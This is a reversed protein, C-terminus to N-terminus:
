PLRYRQLYQLDDDDKRALYVVRSGFGVLRTHAPLAIRESLHGRDDFVDYTPIPDDHARTRLVWLRGDPAVVAAGALFAPMVAPWGIDADDFLARSMPAAKGQPPGSGGSSAPPAVAGGGGGPGMVIISGPRTQGEIFAKKEADSIRVPQYPVPPGRTRRGDVGIWEVHYDGARVIAVRGDSAFAVADEPALPRNTYAFVRGGPLSRTATRRGAPIGLVAITDVAVRGRSRRLVVQDREESFGSAGRPGYRDNVFYFHAYYDIATALGVMRRDDGGDDLAFSTGPKGGPLIVLYRLNLADALLTTDGPLAFLRGPIGYEGPGNGVRGVTEGSGRELNLLQLTKEMRDNVLVRGDSLERVTTISTFPERYEVEPQSLTKLRVSQALAPQLCTILASALVPLINRMM